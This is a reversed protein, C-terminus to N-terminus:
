GVWGGESRQEARRQRQGRDRASALDPWDVLEMSTSARAQGKWDRERERERPMM